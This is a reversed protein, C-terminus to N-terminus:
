LFSRVAGNVEEFHEFSSALDTLELVQRVVESVGCLKLARGSGALQDNVELLIELGRSDIFPVSSADLVLRGLSHRQVQLLRDLLQEADDRTIPGMPKVVTVAGHKHEQVDM